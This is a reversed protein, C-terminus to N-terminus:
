RHKPRTSPWWGSLRLKPNPLTEGHQPVVKLKHPHYCHTNELYWLFVLTSPSKMRRINKVPKITLEWQCDRSTAQHLMRKWTGPCPQFFPAQHLQHTNRGNSYSLESIHLRTSASPYTPGIQASLRQSASLTHSDRGSYQWLAFSTQAKYRSPSSIFSMVARISPTRVFM